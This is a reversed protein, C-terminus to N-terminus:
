NFFALYQRVRAALFREVLAEVQVRSSDFLVVWHRRVLTMFCEIQLLRPFLWSPSHHLFLKILDFGSLERGFFLHFDM